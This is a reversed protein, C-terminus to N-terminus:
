TRLPAAVAALWEAERPRLARRTWLKAAEDAASSRTPSRVGPSPTLPALPRAPLALSTRRAVLGCREMALWATACVVPRRGLRARGGFAVGLVWAGLRVAAGSCRAGGRLAAGSACHRGGAPGSGGGAGPGQHRGGTCRRFAREPAARGRCRM